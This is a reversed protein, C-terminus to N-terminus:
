NIIGTEDYGDGEGTRNDASMEISGSNNKPQNYFVLSAEGFAPKGSEDLEIAFRDLDYSQGDASPNVDWKLGFKGVKITPNGGVAASEKGLNVKGGKNLSITM